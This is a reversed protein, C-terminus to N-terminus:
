SLDQHECQDRIVRVVNALDKRVQCEWVILVSFGASKLQHQSRQDREVNRNLKQEWYERNRKPM